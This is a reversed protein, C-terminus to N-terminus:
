DTPPVAPGRRPSASAEPADVIRSLLWVFGGWACFLYLYLVPLGLVVSEVSFLSLVPYNFLLFGLVFLAILRQRKM